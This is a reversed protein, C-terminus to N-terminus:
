INNNTFEIAKCTQLNEIPYQGMDFQKGVFYSSASQETSQASVDTTYNHQPNDFLVKVSNLQSPAILKLEDAMYAGMATNLLYLNVGDQQISDTITGLMAFAGNLDKYCVKLGIHLDSDKTQHFLLIKM